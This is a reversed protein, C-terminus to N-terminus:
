RIDFLPHLDLITLSAGDQSVIFVQFSVHGTFSGPAIFVKQRLKLNNLIAM